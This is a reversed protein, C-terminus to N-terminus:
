NNKAMKARREKNNKKTGLGAGLAGLGVNASVIAAGAGITAIKKNKKTLKVGADELAEKVMPKIKKLERGTKAAGYVGAGAGVGAGVVRAAKVGKKESEELDEGKEINRKAVQKGVARGAVGGYGGLLYARGYGRLSENSKKKPENEEEEAFERQAYEYGDCFACELLDDLEDNGTSYLREEEYDGTESYLREAFQRGIKM